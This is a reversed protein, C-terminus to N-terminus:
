NDDIKFLKEPIPAALYEVRGDLFSAIARKSPLYHIPVTPRSGDTRMPVYAAGATENFTGWGYAAYITGATSDVGQLRQLSGWKALYSNFGIPNLIGSWDGALAVGQFPSGKMSPQSYPKVFTGDNVGFLKPLQASIANAYQANNAPAVTIDPFLYPQVSAWFSSLIYGRSPMLALAPDGEWRLTPILGNNEGAFNLSAQTISRLNAVSKAETAAAQTRNLAPVALVALIGVIAVVILVEILTFGATRANRPSPSNM